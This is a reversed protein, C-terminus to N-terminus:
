KNEELMASLPDPKQLAGKIDAYMATTGSSQWDQLYSTFNLGDTWQLLEDVEWDEICEAGSEEAATFIGQAAADVLDKVETDERDKAKLMGAAYMKKMWSIKRRKRKIELDQKRLLKDHPYFVKKKSTEYAVPDSNLFKLVRENVPRWGNNDVRQYWDIDKDEEVDFAKNHIFKGPIIKASAATYYRPAFSGIDTVHSHTFIKYYINPPFKAGGLRFRVHTGSAEDLVSAEKPNICRLMFRPDGKNQFDILQKYYTFVQTDIHKRWIKQIIQVAESANLVKKKKQQEVNVFGLSKQNLVKQKLLKSSVRRWWTQITFACYATFTLLTDPSEKKGNVNLAEETYQQYNLEVKSVGRSLSSKIRTSLESSNLSTRLESYTPSSTYHTSLYTGTCSTPRLISILLARTRYGRWCRQIEIAAALQREDDIESNKLIEKREFKQKRAFFDASFGQLNAANVFRVVDEHTFM